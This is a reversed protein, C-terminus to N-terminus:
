WMCGAPKGVYVCIHMCVCVYVGARVCVCVCSNILVAHSFFFHTLLTPGHSFTIYNPCKFGLKNGKVKLSNEWALRTLTARIFVTM